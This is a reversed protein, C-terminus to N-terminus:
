VGRAAANPVAAFIKKDAAFACHKADLSFRKELSFKLTLADKVRQAEADFRIVLPFDM